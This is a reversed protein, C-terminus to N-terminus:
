WYVLGSSIIQVACKVAGFSYSNMCGTGVFDGKPLERFQRITSHARSNNLLSINKCRDKM